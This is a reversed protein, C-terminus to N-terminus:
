DIEYTLSVSVEIEKSGPALQLGSITSSPYGGYYPNQLPTTEGYYSIDGLKVNMSEAINKAQTRADDIAKKRGEELLSQPETVLYIFSNVSSGGNKTISESVVDLKSVDRLVLSMNQTVYYGVPKTTYAGYGYDESIYYDLKSIDKEDVGAIKLADTIKKIKAAANADEARKVRDNIAFNIQVANPTAPVKGIGTVNISHTSNNSFTRYGFYCAIIIGVIFLTAGAIYFIKKITEM